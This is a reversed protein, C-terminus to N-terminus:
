RAANGSVFSMKSEIMSRMSAEVRGLVICGPQNWEVDFRQDANYNVEALSYTSSYANVPTMRSFTLAGGTSIKFRRISTNTSTRIAYIGNDALELVGLNILLEDGIAVPPDISESWNQVIAYCGGCAPSSPPFRVNGMREFNASVPDSDKSRLRFTPVDVGDSSPAIDRGFLWDVSTQLDAALQILTQPSPIALGCCWRHAQQRSAGYKAGLASYRGANASPFGARDLARNLREGFQAMFETPSMGVGDPSLPPLPRGILAADTM